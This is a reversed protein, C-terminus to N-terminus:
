WQDVISAELLEARTEQIRLVFLLGNVGDDLIHAIHVFSTTSRSLVCGNECSRWM